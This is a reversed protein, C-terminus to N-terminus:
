GGQAMGSKLARWTRLASDEWRFRKARERVKSSLVARLEVSDLLHDMKGALDEPSSPDFYVAADGAFEPMPPRDSSLLPRGSGMAELLINPCNECESAFLNITAHSYVAPLDDYPVNGALVVDGQLGLREIERRVRKGYPPFEPGALILKEPTKRRRKLISFARVVEIQAKYVDLISVYLLYDGTPLWRPRPLPPKEAVLFRDQIGHPIVAANRIRGGSRRDIVDKAYESVFIVLDARLMSKLLVSELIRVRARMYGPPYRRRQEHDFPLMNRFMTVSRCGRPVTTGIVGGPCFFVDINLKKLVGPLVLTEYLARPVPSDAHRGTPIAEVNRGGPLPSLSDPALVYVKTDPDEPVHAFLNRLYTQGGGRRASLADVLIRM